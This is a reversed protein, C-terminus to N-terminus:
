NTKCNPNKIKSTRPKNFKNMIKLNSTRLNLNEQNKLNLYLSGSMMRIKILKKLVKNKSPNIMILEQNSIQPQYMIMNILKLYNKMRIIKIHKIKKRLQNKRYQFSDMMWIIM